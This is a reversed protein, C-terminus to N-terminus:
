ESTQHDPFVISPKKKTYYSVIANVKRININALETWEDQNTTTMAARESNPLVAMVELGLFVQSPHNVIVNDVNKKWHVFDDIHNWYKYKKRLRSPLKEGPKILVVRKFKIGFNRLHASIELSSSQKLRRYHQKVDFEAHKNNIPYGVQCMEDLIPEAKGIENVTCSVITGEDIIPHTFDDIYTESVSECTSVSEDHVRPVSHEESVTHEKISSPDEVVLHEECEDAEETTCSGNTVDIDDNNNNFNSFDSIQSKSKDSKARNSSAIMDLIAQAQDDSFYSGDSNRVYQDNSEVLCCTSMFAIPSTSQLLVEVKPDFPNFNIRRANVCMFQMVKVIILAQRPELNDFNNVDFM